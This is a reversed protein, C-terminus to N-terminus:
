QRRRKKSRLDDTAGLQLKCNALEVSLREANQRLVLNPPLLVGDPSFSTSSIQHVGGFNFFAATRIQADSRSEILEGVNQLIQLPSFLDAAIDAATFTEDDNFIFNSWKDFQTLDKLFLTFYVTDMERRRFFKVIVNILDKPACFSNSGSLFFPDSTNLNANSGFQTVFALDYDYIKALYQQNPLEYLVGEIEYYLTQPIDFPECYINEFHLDNHNMKALSMVYCAVMIQFLLQYDQVNFFGQTKRIGLIRNAREKNKLYGSLTVSRAKIVENLLISFRYTSVTVSPITTTVTILLPDTVAPRAEFMREVRTKMMHQISRRIQNVDASSEGIKVIDDFTCNDASGLYGVFNPCINNELIPSIIDRYVKIEYSLGLTDETPLTTPSIFWKMFISTLLEGNYYTSPKTHLIWTDTPSGSNGALGTVAAVYQYIECANGYFKNFNNGM